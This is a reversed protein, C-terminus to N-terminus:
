PQDADKLLEVTSGATIEPHDPLAFRVDEIFKNGALKLISEVTAEDESEHIPVNLTITLTAFRSM